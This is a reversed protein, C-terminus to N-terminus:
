SEGYIKIDLYKLRLYSDVERQTVETEEAGKHNEQATAFCELFLRKVILIVGCTNSFSTENHKPCSM